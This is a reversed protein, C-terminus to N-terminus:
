APSTRLRGVPPLDTVTVTSSFTSALGGSDKVTATVTYTGAKTYTHTTTAGAQPGVVTGDGFDFTYASIPTADTDTSTSADATVALPTVGSVPTVSMRAAPPADVGGGMSFEYAGRDDYPRPGLGTNAVFPDDIRLTGDIDAAPQGSAGSDASDIAPSTGTLHFDRGTMNVWKPDAWIDHAGQGSAARFAALTSYNTSNWIYLTDNVTLWVLNSDVVAGTTSGKEIRIDSHTRPSGIGNDVSVNNIVQAGTSTGEVNIGATVNKYVTNSIIRQDTTTLNDIGHDGNNNLVNDYILTRAAEPYSEIGSDENDHSHNGAVVNDTSQYIRIGAAARQYGRANAFCENNLVQVRASSGVVAIGSDTNHDVTNHSVVVDTSGTIRIGFKTQGSVPQGSHSAHNNSLTVNSAGSSVDLGYSSTGTVNFGNITIWGKASVVFGDAQGTVTVTAGPAATYLIPAASTGSVPVSVRESYTGAAVQVTAGATTKSAAASITCFPQAATGSGTNSCSSNSRDVFLTPTAAANASPLTTALVVGAAALAALWSSPRNISRRRRM